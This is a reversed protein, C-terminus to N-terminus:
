AGVVRIESELKIGTKEKVESTILAMLEMIDSARANGTNVIFNAHKHSVMADGVRKGKLGAQEILRGAYEGPPNKFVSGCSPQDLPQSEKRRTLCNDIRERIIGSDEIELELTVEYVIANMPISSARYSFSIQSRNLYLERGNDTVIGVGTVRDGIEGGHAGANMIVAGAVTGPIGSMFELGSFGTQMCYSLLKGISLGGGATLVRDEEISREVQALKEKLIIVVGEITKDGFLINSGKGVVLWPLREKSLFSMLGSLVSLDGAFCIAEASGGVRFTSYGKLDANFQVAHDLIKCLESKQREDMM